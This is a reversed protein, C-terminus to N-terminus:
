KNTTKKQITMETNDNKDMSNANSKFQACENNNTVDVIVGLPKMTM